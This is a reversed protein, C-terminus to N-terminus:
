FIIKKSDDENWIIGDGNAKIMYIFGDKITINPMEKYITNLSIYKHFNSFLLDKITIDKVLEYQKPYDKPIDDAIFMKNLEKNKYLIIEGAGLLIIKLIKQNLIELKQIIKILINYINIVKNKKTDKNPFLIDVSPNIHVAIKSRNKLIICITLTSITNGFCIEGKPGVTYINNEVVLKSRGNKYKLINMRKTSLEISNYFCKDAIGTLTQCKNPFTNEDFNTFPCLPCMANNQINKDALYDCKASQTNIIKEKFNDLNNKLQIYKNKYKKYKEEYNM